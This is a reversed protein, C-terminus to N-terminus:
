VDKCYTEYAKTIDDKLKQRLSDPSLIEVFDFFRRAWILMNNWTSEVEVTLMPASDDAAEDTSCIKYTDGFYDVVENM